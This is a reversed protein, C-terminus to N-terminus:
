VRVPFKKVPEVDVPRPSQRVRKRTPHRWVLRRMPRFFILPPSSSRPMIRATANCRSRFAAERMETVDSCTIGLPTPLMSSQHRVETVRRQIWAVRRVTVAPCASVTELLMLLLDVSSVTAWSTLFSGATNVFTGSSSICLWIFASRM